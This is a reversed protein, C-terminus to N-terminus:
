MLTVEHEAGMAEEVGAPSIRHVVDPFGNWIAKRDYWVPVCQELQQRLAKKSTGGCTRRSPRFVTTWCPLVSSPQRRGAPLFTRERSFASPM